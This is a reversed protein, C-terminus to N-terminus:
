LCKLTSALGSSLSLLHMPPMLSEKFVQSSQSAWPEVDNTCQIEPIESIAPLLEYTQLQIWLETLPILVIWSMLILQVSSTWFLVIIERQLLVPSAYDILDTFIWGWFSITLFSLSKMHKKSFSDLYPSCFCFLRTYGQLPKNQVLSKTVNHWKYGFLYIVSM